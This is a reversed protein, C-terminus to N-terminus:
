KEEMFGESTKIRRARRLVSGESPKNLQKRVYFPYGLVLLSAFTFWQAAYGLHPGESLELEPQYPIPPTTDVPDVNPQVYVDILPYPVQQGIRELNVSNWFELRAQGPALAPDPVGGFDPRAQGLRIQGRLTIRGPQDYRRWDAPSDNEEAPIWRDVLLASGMTLAPTLLNFGSRKSLLSAYVVRSEFDYTRGVAVARYEM